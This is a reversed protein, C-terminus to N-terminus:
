GKRIYLGACLAVFGFVFNEAPALVVRWDWTGTVYCGWFGILSVVLHIIGELLSAYGLIFRINKKIFTVMTKM